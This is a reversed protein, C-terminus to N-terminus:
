IPNNRLLKLLRKYLHDRRHNFRFGTEKLHLYFTHKPLGKFRILQLKAFAWFSEIGNIHRNDTAFENVGNHVRFHREYGVDVLGDYARWGDTHIVSDLDVRVRIV